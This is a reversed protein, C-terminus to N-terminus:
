NNKDEKIIVPIASDISKIHLDRQPFPIEINHEYLTDYILILFRSQTRKPYLTEEGKIWVFLEFDVSSSNMNTMIVRTKRYKDQYIDRFTSNKVANLIIDVVKHVDTGYAVGFPIKFRRIRDNMTWNIVQSEILDKNPIIVDINDNTTITTSRMSIDLVRGRLDDDLQIYDGIKISREFMLIIGSIFNSVINQLGFGIGVSLAGAVIALSSLNVGLIKLSIFFAVLIILYYGLNALLTKSSNSLKDSISKISKKYLSGALFSIIFFILALTLKLTSIPTNNINFLPENIKQFFLSITNKLEQTTAGKILEVNGLIKKEMDRLLKNITTVVEDEYIKHSLNIINKQMNFLKTTKKLQLYKSFLLFSDIIKNQILKDKKELLKNVENKVVNADQNKNLLNLQEININYKQITIKINSLKNDISKINNNLKIDDIKINNINDIMIMKAKNITNNYIKLKQNYLELGKTYFTLQLQLTLLNKDKSTAKSIEKKTIDRKTQLIKIKNKIEASKKSWKIYKIFLNKYENESKIYSNLKFAEIKKKKLDIIQQILAKKIADENTLNSEKSITSLLNKFYSSNADIITKNIDASFIFSTFLLLIFLNKM